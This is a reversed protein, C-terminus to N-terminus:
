KGNISKSSKIWTIVLTKIIQGSINDVDLIIQSWRDLFVIHRYQDPNHKLFDKHMIIQRIDLNRIITTDISSVLTTPLRQTYHTVPHEAAKAEVTCTIDFAVSSPRLNLNTSFPIGM